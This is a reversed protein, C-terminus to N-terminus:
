NRERLIKLPEYKTIVVIGVVGSLGALVLAIVTIQMMTNRDFSIQIESIPTYTNVGSTQTKGGSMLYRGGGSDSNQAEVAAVQTELVSDAVPQSIIRGIGLGLMLCLISLMIAEALMGVAIKIKELGMARLVGVEYKRERVAIFSLLILVIAGLILIVIMFATTANRMSTLPATVGDLEEQNVSVSYNEPCGKERVEDEFKALDDPNKLYYEAMFNIGADTEYGKSMVTEYSTIIQNRRNMYFLGQFQYMMNSYTETDDSYIGSVTLGYTKAPTAQGEAIIVDGVSIDNLEALESSIICEDPMDFMEGDVINRLTGFDAMTDPDSNGILMMTAAKTASGDTNQWESQGKSEDDVAFTTSSHLPVEVNYISKDLYDSEAYSLYEAISINGKDTGSGYEAFLDAGITVRSGIRLRTDEIIKGSANGITLTVATSIIIALTVVAILINREKNRILNKMANTVIYM